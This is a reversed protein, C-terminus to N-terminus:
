LGYLLSCMFDRLFVIPFELENAHLGLITILNTYIPFALVCIQLPIEKVFMVLKCSKELSPFEWKSTVFGLKTLFQDGKSNKM